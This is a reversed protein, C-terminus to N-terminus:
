HIKVPLRQSLKDSLALRMDLYTVLSSPCFLWLSGYVPFLLSPFVTKIFIISLFKFLSKTKM